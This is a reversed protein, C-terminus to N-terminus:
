QSLQLLLKCRVKKLDGKPCTSEIGFKKVCVFMCKQLYQEHINRHLSKVRKLTIITLAVKNLLECYLHAYNLDEMSRNAIQNFTAYRNFVKAEFAVDKVKFDLDDMAIILCVEKMPFVVM